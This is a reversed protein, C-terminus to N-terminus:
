SGTDVGCQLGLGPPARWPPSSPADKAEDQLAGGSRCREQWSVVQLPTSGLKGRKVAEGVRGARRDRVPHYALMWLTATGTRAEIARQPASQLALKAADRCICNGRGGREDEGTTGNVALSHNHRPLKFKHIDFNHVAASLPAYCFPRVIGLSLTSDREVSCGGFSVCTADDSPLFATVRSRPVSRHPRSVVGSRM